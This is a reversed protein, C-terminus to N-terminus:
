FLATVYTPNAAKDRLGVNMQLDTFIYETNLYAM